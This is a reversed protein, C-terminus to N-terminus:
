SKVRRTTRRRAPTRTEQPWAALVRELRAIEEIMSRLEARGVEISAKAGAVLDVPPTPAVALRPAQTSQVASM